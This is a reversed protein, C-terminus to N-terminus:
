ETRGGRLWRMLATTIWELIVAQGIILGIAVLAYVTLHRDSLDKLWGALFHLAVFFYVIVLGAYIPLEIFFFAKLTKAADSKM